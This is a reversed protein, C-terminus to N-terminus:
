NGGQKASKWSDRTSSGMNAQKALRSTGADIRPMAFSIKSGIRGHYGQAKKVEKTITRARQEIAEMFFQSAEPIESNLLGYEEFFPDLVDPGSDFGHGLFVQHKCMWRTLSEKTAQALEYNRHVTKGM